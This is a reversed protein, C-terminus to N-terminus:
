GRRGRSDPPKFRLLRYQKHQLHELNRRSGGGGRLDIADILQSPGRVFQPTSTTENGDSVTIRGGQNFCFGRIENSVATVLGNKKRSKALLHVPDSM